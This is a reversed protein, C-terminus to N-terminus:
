LFRQGSGSTMACVRLFVMVLCKLKESSSIDMAGSFSESQASVKRM